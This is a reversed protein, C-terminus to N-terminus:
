KNIQLFAKEETKFGKFISQEKMIKFSMVISTVIYHSCCCTAFNDVIVKIALIFLLQSLLSWKATVMMKSQIEIWEECNKFNNITTQSLMKVQHANSTKILLISHDVNRTCSHHFHLFFILKEM